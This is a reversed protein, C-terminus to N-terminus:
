ITQVIFGQGHRRGAIDQGRVGQGHQLGNGAMAAKGGGGAVHAHHGAGQTVPHPLHFLRQVHQQEVPRRALGLQGGCAMLQQALAHTQQAVHVANRVPDLTHGGAPLALEGQHKVGDDILAHHHIQALGEVRGVRGRPQPQAVFGQAAGQVAEGGALRIQGDTHRHGAGGRRTQAKGFHAGHHAKHEGHGRLM